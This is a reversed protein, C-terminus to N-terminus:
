ALGHEALRDLMPALHAAYPQWAKGRDRLIGARVDHTSATAVMGEPRSVDLMAESFEVGCYAALAAAETAPEQVLSEYHVHHVRERLEESWFAMLDEYARYYDAIELLDYSYAAEITFLTRLNSFCTDVPDRRIHVLRAAPVATAIQGLLVFNPNLKETVYAAGGSRWRMSKLYRRGVENFDVTSSAQAIRIDAVGTCFHDTARRMEATFAYTEGCDVIDPHGSLIRELLTTGSRHMGVIFIPTAGGDPLRHQANRYTPFAAKQADFLRLTAAHDYPQFSRKARFARTLAHWARDFDGLDHLTNHLAYAYHVEDRPNLDSARLREELEDLGNSDPSARRVRSLISYAASYRPNLAIAASFHEAAAKSDGAFMAVVGLMHHAQPLDRRRKLASRLWREVHEYNGISTLLMCLEVLREPTLRRYLETAAVYQGLLEGEEFRRFRRAIALGVMPDTGSGGARAANLVCEFSERYHDLRELAMSLELWAPVFSPAAETIRRYGAAAKNWNRGDTFRQATTWAQLLPPPLGM